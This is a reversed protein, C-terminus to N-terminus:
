SSVAAQVDIRQFRELVDTLEAGVLFVVKLFDQTGGLDKFINGERSEIRTKGVEFLVSLLCLQLRESDHLVLQAYGICQHKVEQMNYSECLYCAVVQAITIM